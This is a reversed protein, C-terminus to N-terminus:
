MCLGKLTVEESAMNYLSQSLIIMMHQESSENLFDVDIKAYADM